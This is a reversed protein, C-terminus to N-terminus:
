FVWFLFVKEACVLVEEYVKDELEVGKRYYDGFMIPISRTDNLDCDAKFDHVLLKNIFGLFWEKDTKNVLRDYFVRSCEHIWVKIFTNEDKVTSPQCMLMGQFVKSVDRLNFSYHTKQPTPLLEKSIKFYVKLTSKVMVNAYGKIEMPFDLLFGNLISEFIITLSDESTTPLNLIHFHSTFRNSLVKRGGSPPAAACILTTNEIDKWFLKERDYFGSVDKLQRILEIVPQSGFLDYSPMNVDDIFLIVRKGFNGTLLTKKKRELKSEITEQIQLSDTQSSFSLMISYFNKERLKQFTEGAIITKGVGTTGTLFVSTGTMIERELLYSFRTTDNTGVVLEFYSKKPDYVFPDTMNEWPNFEGYNSIVTDIYFDFMSGININFIRIRVKLLTRLILSM